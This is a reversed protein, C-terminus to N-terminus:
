RSERGHLRRLKRKQVDLQRHKTCEFRDSSEISDLNSAVPEDHFGAPMASQKKWLDRGLPLPVSAREELLRAALSAKKAIRPGSASRHPPELSLHKSLAAFHDALRTQDDFSALQEPKQCGAPRSRDSRAPAGQDEADRAVDP